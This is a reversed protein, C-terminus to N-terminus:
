LLILGVGIAGSLIFENIVAWKKEKLDPLWSFLADRVKDISPHVFPDKHFIPRLIYWDIIDPLISFLMVWWYDNFFWIFILGSLAFAYVIHFIKFFTDDWHPKYPHYTSIAICDLLYHSLVALVAILIIQAVIPFTPLL